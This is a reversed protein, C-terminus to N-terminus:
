LRFNKPLNGSFDSIIAEAEALYFIEFDPNESTKYISKVLPSKEQIRSKLAIDQSFVVKGKLRLWAFDPSSCCLEVYPQNKIEGYVDKKNSTCFYFKGGEELMFQFPRVKPKGDLGTTAFFQVANKELFAKVEKM